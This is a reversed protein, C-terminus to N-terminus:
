PVKKLGPFTKLNLGLRNDNGLLADSARSEEELGSSRFDTVQQLRLVGKERGLVAQSSRDYIVAHGFQFQLSIHIQKFHVFLTQPTFERRLYDIINFLLVAFSRLPSLDKQVTPMTTATAETTRIKIQSLTTRPLSSGVLLRAVKTTLFPGRVMLTNSDPVMWGLSWIVRLFSTSPLVDMTLRTGSPLTTLAPSTSPSTSALVRLSGFMSWSM